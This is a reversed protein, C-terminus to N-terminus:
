AAKRKRRAVWGLAGIGALLLPLSAPVPVAAVTLAGATGNVTRDDALGVSKFRFAKATIAKILTFSALGVTDFNTGVPALGPAVGAVTWNEGDMSYELQVDEGKDGPKAIYSLLGAFGLVRVAEKFTVIVAEVGKDIEEFNDANGPADVGFGVDFGGSVAACVYTTGCGTRNGHVANSLSGGEATVDWQIGFVSGTEANDKTFDILTAASAPGVLGALLAAAVFSKKM